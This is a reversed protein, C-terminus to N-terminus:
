AAADSEPRTTLADTGDHLVAGDLLLRARVSAGHHGCFLLESGSPLTARLYARAGCRDCRDAVALPTATRRLTDTDIEEDGTRHCPCRGRSAPRM